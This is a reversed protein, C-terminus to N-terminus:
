LCESSSSNITHLAILSTWIWTSTVGILFLTVHSTVHSCTWTWCCILLMGVPHNAPSPSIFPINSFRLINKGHVFHTSLYWHDLGNIRAWMPQHSKDGVEWRMISVPKLGDLNPFLVKLCTFHHSTYMYMYRSKGHHKMSVLYLHHPNGRLLRCTTSGVAQTACGQQNGRM